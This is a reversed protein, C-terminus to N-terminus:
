MRSRKKSLCVLENVAGPCARWTDVSIIMQTVDCYTAEADADGCATM